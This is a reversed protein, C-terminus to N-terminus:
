ISIIVYLNFFNLMKKLESLIKKYETKFRIKFYGESYDIYFKKNVEKFLKEINKKSPFRDEVFSLELYNEKLSVKKIYKELCIIKLRTLLLLNEVEKPPKGFRDNLEEAIENVNIFMNASSLRKYIDIRSTEDEVYTAPIYADLNSYVEPIVKESIKEGKLGRITEQLLKMYLDYGIKTIHGHQKSGLLNGAGRIELDKM